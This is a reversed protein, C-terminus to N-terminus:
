FSFSIGSYLGIFYPKFNGANSSFTNVQYKFMPEFNAEFAKWFRYKFGVGINTSFHINNLNQAKGMDSVLGQSSRVSVSNENLFLTSVGGIIDVGFRSDVLKYSMELPVEIYGTRQVLSGNFTKTPLQDAFSNGTNHGENQVVINAISGRAAVNPTQQNMAAYFQIDNTTYNLNVTNVGTRISIRNNLAYNVAVGYSLDNEYDKSNGAFQPDIPSGESMSNYFVPALQPKINWKNKEADAVAKEEKDKEGNLKDQLLKELENQSKVTDVAAEAIATEAAAKDIVNGASNEENANTNAVATNEQPQVNSGANNSVNNQSANTQNQRNNNERSNGAIAEQQRNTNNNILNNANNDEAIGKRNSTNSRNSNRGANNNDNHHAVATEAGNAAQTYGQARNPRNGKRITNGSQKEYAVATNNNGSVSAGSKGTGKGAATAGAKRTIPNVGNEEDSAIVTGTENTVVAEDGMDTVTQNPKIPKDVPSLNKVPEQEQRGTNDLVVPTNGSDIGKFFPIAVMLGILLAAAIGSLRFWLPIVRREKKDKQLEAEINQWLQEPPAVEFDKFKEQFLRDINKKESM